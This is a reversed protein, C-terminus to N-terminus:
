NVGHRLWPRSPNKKFSSVLRDVVLLILGSGIAIVWENNLFDM